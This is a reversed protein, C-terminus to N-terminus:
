LRPEARLRELTQMNSFAPSYLVPSAELSQVFLREAMAYDGRMMAVYGANNFDRAAGDGGGATVAGYDGAMARALTRNVAAAELMPEHALATDFALAADHYQGLTMLSYGYNNYIAGPRTSTELAQAYANHAAVVDSRHDYIRALGNWARWLTPDGAVAALLSPEAMDLHGSSLYVLGIGQQGRPDQAVGGYASLADQFAGQALLADGLGIQANVDGPAEDLIARYMRAAGAADGDRLARQAARVRGDGAAAAHQGAAGFHGGPLGGSSSSPTACAGLGMVVVLASLARVTWRMSM